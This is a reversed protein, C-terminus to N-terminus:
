LSPRPIVEYIRTESGQQSGDGVTSTVTFTLVNNTDDWVISTGGSNIHRAVSVDTPSGADLTYTRVLNTGSISYIIQHESGTWDDWVLTLPFGSTAGETIQQAMKADHSVRSGAMQADKIATMHNSSRASNNFVQMIATTAAGAVIAGIAFAILLELLTFGRQKRGLFLIKKLM